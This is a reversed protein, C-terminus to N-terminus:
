YGKMIKVWLLLLVGVAEGRVRERSPPVRLNTIPSTLVAQDEGEGDSRTDRGRGWEWVWGAGERGVSPADRRNWGLVM